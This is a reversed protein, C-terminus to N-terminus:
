YGILDLLFLGIPLFYVLYYNSFSLLADFNHYIHQFIDLLEKHYFIFMNIKELNKHNKRLSSYNITIDLDHVLIFTCFTQYAKLLSAIKFQYLFLDYNM